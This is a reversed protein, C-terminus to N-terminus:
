KRKTLLAMAIFGSGLGAMVGVATQNYLIGFAIGLLLFGVFAIGSREYDMENKKKEKAM